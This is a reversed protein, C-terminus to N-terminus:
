DLCVGTQHELWRAIETHDHGEGLHDLADRCVKGVTQAIPMAELTSEALGLATLVDKTLLDLTFGSSYEQSLVFPEIKSETAYNRGSSGNLVRLMTHPDLGFARGATLVELAGVLGIASLLNNLAKMAHASGLPGTPIIAQGLRELIPRCAEFSRADGGVMISLSGNEAGKVGGSVPADLLRAGAEAVEEGLQLTKRPDSSGMDLIIGPPAPGGLLCDCRGADGNSVGSVVERVAESTPLMTIVVDANAAIERLSKASEATSTEAVRTSVEADLDFVLLDLGLSALRRVM